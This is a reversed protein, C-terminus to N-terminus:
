WGLIKIKSFPCLSSRLVCAKDQGCRKSTDKVCVKDTKLREQERKWRNM